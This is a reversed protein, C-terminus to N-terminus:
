ADVVSTRNWLGMFHRGDDEVLERTPPRLRRRLDIERFGGERVLLENTENRYCTALLWETGSAVFNRLIASIQEDTVHQMLERCLMLDAKPLPGATIDLCIFKLGPATLRASEVHKEDYDCGTYEIGTLDVQSMWNFDGCGADLLSKIGLDRFLGPLQERLTRTRGLTSGIGCTTEPLGSRFPM